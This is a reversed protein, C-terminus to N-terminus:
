GGFSKRMAAGVRDVLHADAVHSYRQTMSLTKHGLVAAIELVTMGSMAMTSAASHRLDHFRFDALEAKKCTRRWEKHTLEWPKSGTKAPFVLESDIRRIKAREKLISLAPEVLPVLRRDGNKSDLLKITQTSSDIQRWRLTTMESKRMGSSLALVVLAYLDEHSRCTNLLRQREEDSLFRTRGRPEVLKRFKSFPSTELWDWDRVAKSFVSALCATYRNQSGPSLPKEGSGLRDRLELLNARTVDALRKEGIQLRWWNLITRYNRASKAPLDKEFYRDIAQAVTHTSTAPTIIKQAIETRLRNRWGKALAMTHFTRFKRNGDIRVRVQFMKKGSRTLRTTIGITDVM